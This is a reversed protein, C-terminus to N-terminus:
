EDFTFHIQTSFPIEERNQTEREDRYSRLQRFCRLVGNGGGKALFINSDRSKLSINLNPIIKLNRQKGLFCYFEHKPTLVQVM